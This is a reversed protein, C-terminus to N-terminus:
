IFIVTFLVLSIKKRIDVLLNFSRQSLFIPFNGSAQEMAKMIDLELNISGKRM